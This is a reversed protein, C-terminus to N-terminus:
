VEDLGALLIARGYGMLVGSDEDAESRGKNRLCEYLTIFATANHTIM